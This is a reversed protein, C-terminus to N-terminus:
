QIDTWIKPRDPGIGRYAIGTHTNYNDFLARPYGHLNSPAM